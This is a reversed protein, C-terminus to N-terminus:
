SIPSKVNNIQPSYLVFTCRVKLATTVNFENVKQRSVNENRRRGTPYRCHLPTFVDIQVAGSLQRQCYFMAALVEVVLLCSIFKSFHLRKRTELVHERHFTM